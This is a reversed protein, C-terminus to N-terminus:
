TDDKSSRETENKEFEQQQLEEVWAVASSFITFKQEHKVGGVTVEARVGKSDPGIYFSM